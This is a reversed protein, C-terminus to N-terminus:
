SVNYCLIASMMVPILKLNHEYTGAGADSSLNDQRAIRLILGKLDNLLMWCKSTIKDKM